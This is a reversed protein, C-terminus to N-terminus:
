VFVLASEPLFLIKESLDQESIVAVLSYRQLVLSIRCSRTHQTPHTRNPTFYVRFIDVKVAYQSTSNKGSSQSSTSLFRPITINSIFYHDPKTRFELSICFRFKDKIKYIKKNSSKKNFIETIIRHNQYLFSCLILLKRQM